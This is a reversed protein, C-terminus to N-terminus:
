TAPGKQDNQHNKSHMGNQYYNLFSFAPGKPKLPPRMTLAHRYPDRPSSGTAATPTRETNGRLATIWVAVGASRVDCRENTPRGHTHSFAHTCAPPRPARRLAFCTPLFFSRGLFPHSGSSSSLRWAHQSVVAPLPFPTHPGARFLSASRVHQPEFLVSPLPLPAYPLAHM